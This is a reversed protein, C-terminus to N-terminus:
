SKQSSRCPQKKVFDASKKASGQVLIVRKLEHVGSKCSLSLTLCAEKRGEKGGEREGRRKKDVNDELHFLFMRFSYTM